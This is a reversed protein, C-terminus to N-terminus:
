GHSIETCNKVFEQWNLLRDNKLVRPFKNQAGLKGNKDMWEYFLNVPLLTVLVEKLAATRETAYDDNLAKLHKDLVNKIKEKDASNGNTGLYWQHAFFGHYPIGCVAYENIHIGLEEATLQIAKNMNDITLHEGCLSLFMKTRGSIKIECGQKSVFRITDGILYRWAGSCTSILLAYDTDEAIDELLVIEHKERLNGDEDFNDSTFPVFEFYIGNDLVLKMHQKGAEQYALFGESALYTELLHVDKGLYKKFSNRYPEFSVGGHIFVHMNPWIKHINDVEYYRCIKEFLLQYWAPVGAILGVDWENAERMISDLKKNWDKQQAIERGPKYFMHAWIPLNAQLIGSLDGELYNGNRSLATSGGLMLSSKEYFKPPLKIQSLSYVQRMSTKRIAKIMNMSVPVKKSAAESTGSTLAFHNIKGPWSVNEKGALSYHWWEQLMKEYNFAPVHTAYYSRIKKTKLLKSFHYNKGFSTLKAKELLKKLTKEQALAAAQNGGFQMSKRLRVVEQLITGVFAM